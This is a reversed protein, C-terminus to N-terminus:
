TIDNGDYENLNSARERVNQFAEYDFSFEHINDSDITTPTEPIEDATSSYDDNELLINDEDPDDCEFESSNIYDALTGKRREFSM